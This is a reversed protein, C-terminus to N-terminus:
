QESGGLSRYKDEWRRARAADGLRTFLHSLSRSCNLRAPDHDVIAQCQAEMGAFIQESPLPQVGAPPTRM